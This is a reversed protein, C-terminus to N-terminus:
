LEGEIGRLRAEANDQRTARGSGPPRLYGDPYRMTSKVVYGGRDLTQTKVAECRTCILTRTFGKRQGLRSAGSYTWAHHISTDRCLQM